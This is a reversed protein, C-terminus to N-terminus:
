GPQDPDWTGEFFRRSEPVMLGTILVAGFLIGVCFWPQFFIVGLAISVGTLAITTVRAWERAQLLRYALIGYCVAAAVVAATLPWRSTEGADTRALTVNLALAGLLLLGMEIYILSVAVKVPAPARDYRRRPAYPTRDEESM